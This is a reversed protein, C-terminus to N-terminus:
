NSTKNFIDRIQKKGAFDDLTQLDTLRQLVEGRLQKEAANFQHFGQRILKALTDISSELQELMIARIEGVTVDDKFDGM